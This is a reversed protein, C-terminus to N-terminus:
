IQIQCLLRLLTWQHRRGRTSSSSYQFQIATRQRDVHKEILPSITGISTRVFRRTRIKPFSIGDMTDRRSRLLGHQRRFEPSPEPIPSPTPRRLMCDYASRQPLMRTRLRLHRRGWRRREQMEQHSTRRRSMWVNQHDKLGWAHAFVLGLQRLTM